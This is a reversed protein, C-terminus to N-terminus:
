NKNTSRRKRGRSSREEGIGVKYEVADERVQGASEDFRDVLGSLMCVVELLMAKVDAAQTVDTKVFQAAGGDAAIMRATEQGGDEALDSLVVRAGEHAFARAAVRGIGSAGGTILAVKGEFARSM